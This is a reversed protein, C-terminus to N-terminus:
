CYNSRFVIAAACLFCLTQWVQWVSLVPLYKQSTLFIGIIIMCMGLFQHLKYNERFIFVGVGLIAITSISKM